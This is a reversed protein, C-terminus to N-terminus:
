KAAGEGNALISDFDSAEINFRKGLMSFEMAATAQALALTQEEITM